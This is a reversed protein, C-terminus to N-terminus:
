MSVSGDGSAGVQWQVDVDEMHQVDALTKIPSTSSRSPRWESAM